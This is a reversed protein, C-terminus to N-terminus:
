PSVKMPPSYQSLRAIYAPFLPHEGCWDVDYIVLFMGEDFNHDPHRMPHPPNRHCEGKNDEVAKWYPCTKCTPREM